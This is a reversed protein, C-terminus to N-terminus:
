QNEHFQFYQNCLEENQFFFIPQQSKYGGQDKIQIHVDDLSSEEKTAYKRRIVPREIFKKPQSLDIM